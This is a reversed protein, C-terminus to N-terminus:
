EMGRKWKGARRDTRGFGPNPDERLLLAEIVIVLVDVM